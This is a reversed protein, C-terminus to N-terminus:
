KPLVYAVPKLTSYANDTSAALVYSKKFRNNHTWVLDGKRVDEICKHGDSTLVKTGATFCPSGGVVLDIHGLSRIDDETINSVDGFNKVDPYHHSLVASPAADWECFAAAEWGLPKWAVTCAEIGSFLSLYRM